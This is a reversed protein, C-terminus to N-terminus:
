SIHLDSSSRDKIFRPEFEEEVAICKGTVPAVVLGPGQPVVRPPNRFFWSVFLTLIAAAVAVLIWGLWGAMLTIGAALASSPFEKKPLRSASPM